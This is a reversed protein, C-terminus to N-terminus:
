LGSDGVIAKTKEIIEPSTNALSDIRDKLDTGTMPVMEIRTKAVDAILDPDKMALDFAKRLAAFRDAPVGPPAAFPRGLEVNSNYFAVIRGHESSDIFKYVTPADLGPIPNKEMNFLVKLRGNKIWDPRENEVGTLTQCIGQVEGREMALFVEPAGKYGEVVKFKMGLLGALLNPTTSVSSGPGNGGVILESKFLDEGKQVAVGANAVCIRSPMDTSGLWQFKTVDFKIAGKKLLASTPINRSFTGISTGDQPANNFLYNTAIIHGGGPMNKVAFGPNGAIYRPMYKALLRAWVDYVTAAETAVIFEITKGKYFDEVADARADGAPSISGLGVLLLAVRGNMARSM